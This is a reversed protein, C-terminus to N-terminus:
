AANAARRRGAVRQEARMMAFTMPPVIFLCVLALLEGTTASALTGREASFAFLMIIAGLITAFCALIIGVRRVRM